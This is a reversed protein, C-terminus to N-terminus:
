GSPHPAQRADSGSRCRPRPWAVPPTVDSRPRDRLDIQAQSLPPVRVPFRRDGAPVPELLPEPGRVRGRARDRRPPQRNGGFARCRARGAPTPPLRRRQLRLGKPIGPGADGPPSGRSGGARGFEGGPRSRSAPRAGRHGLATADHRAIQAPERAAGALVELVLGEIALPAASDGARLEALLRCGLLSLHADHFSAREELVRAHPGLRGLGAPDAEILLGRTEERGFRNSHPEEAPTIKLTGPSCDLTVGAYREAFGGSYVFCITAGPHRHWALSSGAPHLGERLSFGEVAVARATM